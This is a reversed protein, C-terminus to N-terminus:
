TFLVMCYIIKQFQCKESLMIRPLYMRAATTAEHVLNTGKLQQATNGPNFIGSSTKVTWRIFSLQATEQNICNYVISGYFEEKLLRRHSIKPSGSIGIKHTRLLGKFILFHLRWLLVGSARWASPGSLAGRHKGREERWGRGGRRCGDAQGGHRRTQM